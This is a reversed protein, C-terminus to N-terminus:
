NPTTAQRFESPSIGNKHKFAKYFTVRNNFGARYGIDTLKLDRRNNILREAEEVRYNNVFEYFSMKFSENIIQSAHHRNIGLAVALDKLRLDSDLYPAKTEMILLLEQRLEYSETDSLRSKRPSPNTYSTLNLVPQHLM